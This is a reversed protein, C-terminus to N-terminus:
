ACFVQCVAYRSIYYNIIMKQSLFSEYGRHTVADDFIAYSQGEAVVTPTSKPPVGAPAKTKIRMPRCLVQRHCSAVIGGPRSYASQFSLFDEIHYLIPFYRKRANLGRSVKSEPVVEARQLIEGLKGIVVLAEVADDVLVRYGDSLDRSVEAAAGVLHHREIDGASKVGVTGSKIHLRMDGSMGLKGPYKVAESHESLQRSHRLELFFGGTVGVIYVRPEEGIRRKHRRIDKEILGIHDGDPDILFLVELQCTIDCNSEILEVGVGESYGLRHYLLGSHLDHREGVRRLLHAFRVFVFVRGDPDKVVAIRDYSLESTGDGIRSRAYPYRVVLRPDRVEDRYVGAAGALAGLLDLALELALAVSVELERDSLSTCVKQRGDLGFKVAKHLVFGVKLLHHLLAGFFRRVVRLLGQELHAPLEAKHM